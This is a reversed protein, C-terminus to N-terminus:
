SWGLIEASMQEKFCSIVSCQPLLVILPTCMRQGCTYLCTFVCVCLSLHVHFILHVITQKTVLNVFLSKIRVRASSKKLPSALIASYCRLETDATRVEGGGRRM